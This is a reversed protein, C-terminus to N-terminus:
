VRPLLLGESEHFLLWGMIVGCNPIKRNCDELALLPDQRCCVFGSAAQALAEKRRKRQSFFAAVRGGFTPLLEGTTLM